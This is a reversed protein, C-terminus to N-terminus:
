SHEQPIQAVGRALESLVVQAVVSRGQRGCVTELFVPTIEIVEVCHLGHAKGVDVLRRGVLNDSWRTLVCWNRTKWFDGPRHVGFGRSTHCWRPRDDPTM